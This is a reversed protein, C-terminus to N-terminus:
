GLIKPIHRQENRLLFTNSYSGVSISVQCLSLQVQGSYAEVTKINM